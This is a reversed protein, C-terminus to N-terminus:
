FGYHVCTDDIAAFFHRLNSKCKWGASADLPRLENCFKLAEQRNKDDWSTEYLVAHNMVRIASDLQSYKKCSLAVVYKHIRPFHHNMGLVTQGIHIANGYLGIESFCRSMGMLFM